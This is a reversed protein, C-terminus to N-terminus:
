KIKYMVTWRLKQTGFPYLKIRQIKKEPNGARCSEPTFIFDGKREEFETRLGDLGTQVTDTRIYDLEPMYQVNIEISPLNENGSYYDGDGATWEAEAYKSVAYRWEFKAYMNYAPFEKSSRPEYYDIQKDVEGGVTYVLPGKRFYAGDYTLIEEIRSSFIIEIKSEGKVSITIYGNEIVANKKEGDVMFAIGNNWEPVRFRLEVRKVANVSFVIKDNFPYDTIEKVTANDTKFESAGYLNCIIAGDREEWMNLVYNPMFRNVNGPCCQTAPSPRYSMWKGEHGGKHYLNHNSTRDAIVQNACSFYQLGKFDKLVAGLGANFVCREILDYYRPNGSAKALYNLAWTYDTIVCTENSEYYHDSLLFEDSCLCGGPLMFSKEAKDFAAVSADLYEKKGTYSYLVAGLKSYECYTVGHCFPKKDSLAVRDCADENCLENYKRYNNEALELLRNDKTFKYAFLMIEVNLVDRGRSYDYPCNIYHDHLADIIKQDGNYEYLAMCARFFVVHPWRYAEVADPTKLFAPGLYGDKDANNLVGYIIKEARKIGKKDDLLIACRTFGDIWYGTQEYAWWAYGDGKKDTGWFQEDFPYGAAEIHGTLGETQRNLFEGIWGKAKIKM